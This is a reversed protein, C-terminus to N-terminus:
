SAIGLVKGYQILEANEASQMERFANADSIARLSEQYEQRSRNIWGQLYKAKWPKRIAINTYRRNRADVFGQLTGDSQRYLEKAAGVGMNVATNFYVRQMEEPVSEVHAADWYEKKYINYAQQWTLNKIFERPKDATSKIGFKSYEEGDYFIKDWGETKMTHLIETEPTFIDEKSSRLDVLAEQEKLTLENQSQQGPVIVVTTQDINSRIKELEKKDKLRKIGTYIGLGVASLGLVALGVPNAVLRWIFKAIAKLVHVFIKSLVQFVAIFTMQMFRMVGEAMKYADKAIDKFFTMPSIFEFGFVKKFIFPVIRKTLFNALTSFVSRDEKKEQEEELEIEAATEQAMSEAQLDLVEEDSGIPMGMAYSSAVISTIFPSSSELISEQFNRMVLYYDGM